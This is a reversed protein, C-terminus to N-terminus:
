EFDQFYDKTRIIRGSKLYVRPVRKGIMCALEYNFRGSLGGLEEMTIREGGDKGILTVTDGEEAEPIDTVDAMFQDMCIRGIVPARRGKILVAGKNSLGRPYGDGYGIPITAIRTKRDTIYTGGYSVPTGMEVEKIYVIRSKLSMAPALEVINRDVEGSPWLGYMTIGARVINMNAEKLEVIGASNSCHCVPIGYGTERKIRDVFAKFVELQKRAPTKDKEDAKAFHTFIGEIEVEPMRLISKVFDMGSDDPRIGIRSMGTDVKIHVKARYKGAEASKGGEAGNLGAACSALQKVMDYRFVTPRIEERILDEYCYPFAYGLILIPKKVGCHRLILAEEVTATAFGSLYALPELEEAIPVAGHGYGDTKIVGMIKTESAINAKMQEMNSRIADMDIEAYVRSYKEIM